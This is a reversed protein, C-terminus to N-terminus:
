AITGLEEYFAFCNLGRHFLVPLSHLGYVKYPLRTSYSCDRRDYDFTFMGANNVLLHIKPESDLIRQACERVSQLSTLDLKEVRVEGANDLDAVAARIEAAAEEAKQVNRCAMIVRAGASPCVVLNRLARRAQGQTLRRTVVGRYEEFTRLFTV